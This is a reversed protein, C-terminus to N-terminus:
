KEELKIKKNYVIHQFINKRITESWFFSAPFIRSGFSLLVLLCTGAIKDKRQLEIGTAQKAMADAVENGEM